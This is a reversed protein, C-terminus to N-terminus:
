NGLYLVGTKERQCSFFQCFDGFVNESDGYFKFFRVCKFFYSELHM